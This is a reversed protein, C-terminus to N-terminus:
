IMPLFALVDGFLFHSLDVAYSRVTSILAIGLAFMGAFVIGISTDERLTNRVSRELVWLRFSQPAWHGGSCRDKQTEVSSTASAGGASHHSLPRRRLLWEGYFVSRASSPVSSGWLISAVLGRQMFGYSMPQVIWTVMSEIM